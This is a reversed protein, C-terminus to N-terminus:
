HIVVFEKIPFKTNHLSGLPFHHLIQDFTNSILMGYTVTVSLTDPM